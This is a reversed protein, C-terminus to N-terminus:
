RNKMFQFITDKLDATDIDVFFANLVSVSLISHEAERYIADGFLCRINREDGKLSITDKRRVITVNYRAIKKKLATVSSLLTQESVCLEGALDFYDVPTKSLLLERLIAQERDSGVASEGSDKLLEEIVKANGAIKYGQNSSIIYRDDANISKVLSRLTRISIGFASVIEGSSVWGDSQALYKILEKERSSLMSM